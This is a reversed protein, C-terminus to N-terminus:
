GGLDPRGEAMVPNLLLISKGNNMTLPALTNIGSASTNVVGLPVKRSM